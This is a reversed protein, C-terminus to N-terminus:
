RVVAVAIRDGPRWPEEPVAALQVPPDGRQQVAAREVQLGGDPQAVLVTVEKGDPAHAGPLDGVGGTVGGRHPLKVAPLLLLPGDRDRGHERHPLSYPAGHGHELVQMRREAVGGARDGLQGAPIADTEEVRGEVEARDATAAVGDV